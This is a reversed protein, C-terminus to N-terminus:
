QALWIIACIYLIPLGHHRCRRQPLSLDHCALHGERSAYNWFRGQGIGISISCITIDLRTASKCIPFGGGFPRFVIATMIFISSSHLLSISHSLATPLSVTLTKSLFLEDDHGSVLTLSLIKQAVGHLLTAFMLVQLQVCTCFATCCNSM